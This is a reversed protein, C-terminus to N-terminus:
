DDLISKVVSDIQENIDMVSTLSNEIILLDDSNEPMDHNVISTYESWHSLKWNDRGAGRDILRKRASDEDTYIWIKYLKAEFFDLEFKLDEIWETDFMEKLFPASCFVTKGLEINEISHKMVTQYELNRVKNLYIESERDDRYSGLNVLLEETFFRSVTDKDIFISYNIRKALERGIFTKGSGAVGGVLIYKSRM